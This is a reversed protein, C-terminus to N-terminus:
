SPHSGPLCMGCRECIDGKHHPVGLGCFDGKCLVLDEGCSTCYWSGDEREKMRGPCNAAKNM